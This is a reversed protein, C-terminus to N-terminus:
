YNKIHGHKPYPADAPIFWCHGKQYAGPIRGERCFRTIISRQKGYRAAYEVVTVYDPTSSLLTKLAEPSSFVIENCSSVYAVLEGIPATNFNTASINNDCSRSFNILFEKAEDKNCSKSPQGATEIYYLGDRQLIRSKATM